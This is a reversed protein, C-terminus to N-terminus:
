ATVLDDENVEEFLATPDGKWGLAKVLKKVQGPYPCLHGNEIQSLTTIHMGTKRSLETQKKGQMIRIYKARIM